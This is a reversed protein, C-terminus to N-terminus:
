RKPLRLGVPWSGVVALGANQGLCLLQAHRDSTVGHLLPWDSYLPNARVKKKEKQKRTKPLFSDTTVLVFFLAVCGRRVASLLHRATVFFVIGPSCLASQMSERLHNSHSVWYVQLIAPFCVSVRGHVRRPLAWWFFFLALSEFRQRFSFVFIDLSVFFLTLNVTPLRQCPARRSARQCDVTRLSVHLTSPSRFPLGCM